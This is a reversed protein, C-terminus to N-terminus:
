RKDLEEQRYEYLLNDIDDKIHRVLKLRETMVRNQPTDDPPRTALISRIHRKKDIIVIKDDHIFDAGKMENALLLDHTVWDYIESKSGTCFRWNKLKKSNFRTAYNKLVSVSDHEPDISVSLFAINDFRAFEEAITQIQRNMEPCVEPCSAFFISAIIIKDKLSDLNVPKGNQDTYLFDSVTHPIDKGAENLEPQGLYPLKQHVWKAKALFFILISPIIILATLGVGKALKRGIAM